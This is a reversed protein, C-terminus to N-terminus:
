WIGFARTISGIERLRQLRANESQVKERAHTALDSWCKAAGSSEPCANGTDVGLSADYPFHGLSAGPQIRSKRPVLLGGRSVDITEGLEIKPCLGNDLAPSRLRM